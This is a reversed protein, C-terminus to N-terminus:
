MSPWNDTYRTQGGDDPVVTSLGMLGVGDWGWVQGWGVGFGGVGGWGLGVWGFVEVTEPQQTAVRQRQRVDRAAQLGLGAAGGGGDAVDDHRGAGADVHQDLAVGGAGVHQGGAGPGEVGVVSTLASCMHLSCAHM